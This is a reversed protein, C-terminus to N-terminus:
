IMFKPRDIQTNVISELEILENIKRDSIKHSILRGFTYPGLCKKQFPILYYFIGNNIKSEWHKRDASIQAMANQKGFLDVYLGCMPGVDILGILHCDNIRTLEIFYDLGKQNGMFGSGRFSIEARKLHDKEWLYDRLIKSDVSEIFSEDLILAGMGLCIKALFRDGPNLELSFNTKKENNISSSIKDFIDQYDVSFNDFSYGKYTMPEVNGLYLKAGELTKLYSNLIIPHWFPNNSAVFLFAFGKDSIDNREHPPIGVVPAIMKKRSDFPPHFHFIQDGAPGLYLDCIYNEYNYEKCVGMYKLPLATDQNLTAYKKIVSAHYNYMFWNGTLAYDVFMGVTNNCKKCVNKIKLPNNIDTAGGISRPIIHEDSLQNTLKNQGCYVCIPM